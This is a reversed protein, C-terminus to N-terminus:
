SGQDPCRQAKDHASAVTRFKFHCNACSERNPRKRGTRATQVRGLVSCSLKHSVSSVDHGMPM